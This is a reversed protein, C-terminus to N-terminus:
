GVFIGRLEAGRNKMKRLFANSKSVLPGGKELIQVIDDPSNELEPHNKDTIGFVLDAMLNIDAKTVGPIVEENDNM